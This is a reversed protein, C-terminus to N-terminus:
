NLLYIGINLYAAFILWIVYPYLLYASIRKEKLYNGILFFTLGILLIIWFISLLRLKLLFFLITWSLNFFLGAYYLIITERNNCDKRYLYYSLGILFYLITWAIPFVIKPPALPPQNLSTYDVADKIIFAMIGGLILPLFIRLTNIIKEKM